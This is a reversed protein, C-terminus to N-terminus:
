CLRLVGDECLAAIKADGLGWAGLAERGREGPWLPPSPVALPTREFRPAPGPQLVGAVEVFTARAKNHPDDSVESMALVPALCADSGEALAVWEDRPRTRFVQAFREKTVPWQERDMQAPLEEDALGMVELLAAYFDPELAGVAIHGGDACEYVEYFPAGSDLLNTGRADKWGGLARLGWIMTTLLAAGDVMAADVVQGEGTRQAALLASVVGFALLLGGGAFDGVLNLPVVPREGQRGIADLVGALAIYNIDHGAAAALPGSQGWGTMRGYVLRRNRTRCAEPGVGLREVVGPRFGELLIDAREALDLVLAVGGTRKLDVGISRKGRELLDWSARGPAVDPVASAREVRLVEAGLDALVMAAFPCPGIGALEVVRFGELPGSV